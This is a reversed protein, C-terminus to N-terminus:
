EGQRQGQLQGRRQRQRQGQRPEQGNVKLRQWPGCVHTAFFCVSPSVHPGYNSKQLSVAM